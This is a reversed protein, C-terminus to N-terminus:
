GLSEDIGAEGPKAKRWLSAVRVWGKTLLPRAKPALDAVKSLVQKRALWLGLVTLTGAMVGRNDAAIEMAQALANRSHIEIDTKIRQGLVKPNQLAKAADLRKLLDTRASDRAARLASLKDEVGSM